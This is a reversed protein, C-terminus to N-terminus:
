IKQIIEASLLQIRNALIILRQAQYFVNTTDTCVRVTCNTVNAPQLCNFSFLIYFTQFFM